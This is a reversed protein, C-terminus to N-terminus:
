RRVGIQEAGASPDSGSDPTGANVLRAYRRQVAEDGRM